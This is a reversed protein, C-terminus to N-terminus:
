ETEPPTQEEAQSEETLDPKVGNADLYEKIGQMKVYLEKRQNLVESIEGIEAALTKQQKLISSYQKSHDIM